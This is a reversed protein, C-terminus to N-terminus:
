MKQTSTVFTVIYTQQGQRGVSGRHFGVQRLRQGQWCQFAAPFLLFRLDRLALLL